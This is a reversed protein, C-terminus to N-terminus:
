SYETIEIYGTGGAGGVGGSGGGGCGGGGFVGAVGNSGGPAGGGLYSSGGAGGIGNTQGVDGTDGGSGSGGRVNIDGGTPLGGTGGVSSSGADGGTASIGAITTASGPAAAAGGAGVVYAYTGSLAAIYKDAFGGAGGGGKGAIAGTANAGGGGGGIAIIRASVAGVGPTYTGSGSTYRVVRLMRGSTATTPAYLTDFYTKLTAKVNAWTLKKLVNSAASDVIGFLDADVPTTKATAGNIAVEVQATISAASAAAANASVLAAAASGASAAASAATTTVNTDTTNKNALAAAASGAAASQSALAATAAAEAALQAALAAAAAAVATVKAVGAGAADAQYQGLSVADNPNVATGINTPRYGHFDVANFIDTLAAGEVAEQNLYLMQLFDTDMSQNTFGAGATFRNIVKDIQTTRKLLVKVGAPVAPTFAIVPTSGVWNWTADAAPLDNYFVAIDAQKIYGISVGLLVMTGDSVARQTSFAM